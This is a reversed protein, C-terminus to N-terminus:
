KRILFSQEQEFYQNALATMTADPVAELAEELEGM